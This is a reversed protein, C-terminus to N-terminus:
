VHLKSGITESVAAEIFGNQLALELPMIEFENKLNADAKHELLLEIIDCRGNM